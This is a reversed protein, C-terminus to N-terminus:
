SEIPMVAIKGPQFTIATTPKAIERQKSDAVSVFLQSKEATLDPFEATRLTVTYYGNADTKVPTARNVVGKADSLSVTLNAQPEGAPNLVRGHVVFTEDSAQPANTTALRTDNLPKALDKYLSARNQLSAPVKVGKPVQTLDTARATLSTQAEN